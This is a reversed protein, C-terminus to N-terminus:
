CSVRASKPYTGSKSMIKVNSIALIIFHITAIIITSNFIMTNITTIIILDIGIIINFTIIQIFVEIFIIFV